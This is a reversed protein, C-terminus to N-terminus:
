LREISSNAHIARQINEKIIQRNRPDNSDTGYEPSLVAREKLLRKVVPELLADLRENIETDNFFASAGRTSGNELEVLYLLHDIIIYRLQDRVRDNDLLKDAAASIDTFDLTPILRLHDYLDM